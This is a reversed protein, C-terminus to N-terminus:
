KSNILFDKSKPHLNAFNDFVAGDNEELAQDVAAIYKEIHDVRGLLTEIKNSVGTELATELATSLNEGTIKPVANVLKELQEIRNIVGNLIDDLEKKGQSVGTAAATEIKDLACVKNVVNNIMARTVDHRDELRKAEQQLLDLQQAHNDTIAKLEKLGNAISNDPHLETVEKLSKEMSTLRDAVEDSKKRLQKISVILNCNQALDPAAYLSTAFLATMLLKKVMFVKTDLLISVNQKFIGLLKILKHYWITM